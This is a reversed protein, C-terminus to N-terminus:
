RQEGMKSKAMNNNHNQRLERASETSGIRAQVKNVIGRVDLSGANAEDVDVQEKLSNDEESEDYENLHTRTHTYTHTYSNM